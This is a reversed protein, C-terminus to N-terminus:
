LLHHQNIAKGEKQKEQLISLLPGLINTGGMDALM